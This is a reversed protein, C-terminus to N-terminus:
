ELFVLLIEGQFGVDLSGLSIPTRLCFLYFINERDLLTQNNTRIIFAQNAEKISKFLIAPCELM